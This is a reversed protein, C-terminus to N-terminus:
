KNVNHHAESTTRIFRDPVIDSAQFLNSFKKSNSDCFSKPTMGADSAAEQIKLGHEDTGTTFLTTTSRDKIRFWRSLADAQLASYLHGIHPAGNVYFIPTTIMKTSFFRAQFRQLQGVLMM